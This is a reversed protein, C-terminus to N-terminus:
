MTILIVFHTTLPLFRHSPVSSAASADIFRRLWTSRHRHEHCRRHHRHRHHSCSDDIRASQERSESEMSAADAKAETDANAEEHIRGGCSSNQESVGYGDDGDCYSGDVEAIGAGLVALKSLLLQM